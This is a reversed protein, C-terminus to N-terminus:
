LPLEFWAGEGSWLKVRLMRRPQDVWQADAGPMHLRAPRAEWRARRRAYALDQDTPGGELLARTYLLGAMARRMAERDHLSDAYTALALDGLQSCAVPSAM